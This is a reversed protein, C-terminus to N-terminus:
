ENELYRSPDPYNWGLGVMAAEHLCPILGWLAYDGSIRMNGFALGSAFLGSDIVLIGHIPHPHNIKGTHDLHDYVSELTKWGTYGVVFLPIEDLRFNMKIFDLYKEPRIFQRIDGDWPLCQKFRGRDLQGLQKATNVAENWQAAVDSKVEVVAAIGEALYLRHNGVGPLPLSPALPYEIVVDLQGSRKGTSDTADGTGFRFPEPLVQSLFKDVFASRENGKTTASLTGGGRRVANLIERISALRESVHQNPV